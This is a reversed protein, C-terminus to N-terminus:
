NTGMAQKLDAVASAYDYRSTLLSLEADTYAVEADKLEIVDGIGENYRGQALELNEKAKEVNLEAIPISEAAEQMKIYASQVELFVNNLLSRNDNLTNELSIKAQKVGNYTKFANFIPWEVAALLKTDENDLYFDDGSKTYGASLSFTPFFGAKAQNLKIQSIRVDTRASEVDPRNAYATQVAEDFTKDFKEFSAIEMVKLVDPVTIGLSNALDASATKVLNKARILRLEENNLNVEATTVDVKPRLGLKYYAESREYQDKYLDRSKTRIEVARSASLLAYYNKKVTRILDNKVSELNLKGQEVVLKQTKINRAIDTVGSISLSAQAYVNTDGHDTRPSSGVKQVTYGQSAGVSATPLFESKALNLNVEANQLQLQAAVAKPSNAIALQICDDLSLERTIDPLPKGDAGRPTMLPTTNQVTNQTTKPAPEVPAIVTGNVCVGGFFCTFLLLYRSYKMSINYLNGQITLRGWMFRRWNYFM